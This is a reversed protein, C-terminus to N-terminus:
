KGLLVGSLSSDQGPRSTIKAKGKSTEVITGKTLINRRVFHRNAPNEVVSKIELKEYKKLEPNYVNITDATLFKLKFNGGMVRIKKVKRKGVKPLISYRGLEYKRKKRIKKYVGGSVKRKSRWKSIAMKDKLIFFM